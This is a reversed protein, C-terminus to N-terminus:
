ASLREANQSLDLRRLFVKGKPPFVILEWGAMTPGLMLEDTPFPDLTYSIIRESPPGFPWDLQIGRSILMGSGSAIEAFTLAPGAGDGVRESM